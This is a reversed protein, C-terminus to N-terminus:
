IHILSLNLPNSAAGVCDNNSSCHRDPNGTDQITQGPTTYVRTTIFAASNELFPQVADVSDWPRAVGNMTSYTTGNVDSIAHGVSKETETYGERLIFVYGIVYVLVVARITWNVMGLRRDLMRVEKTTQYSFIEDLDLATLQRYISSCFAAM